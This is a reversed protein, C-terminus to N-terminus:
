TNMEPFFLSIRELLDKFNIPKYFIDEKKIGKELLISEVNEPYEATIILVPIHQTNSLNKLRSYIVDGKGAPLNIDLLILDPEEARAFQMGQAGDYASVTNYGELGLTESIVKNINPEDEIILIKRKIM